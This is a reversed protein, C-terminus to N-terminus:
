FRGYSNLEFTRNEGEERSVDHFITVYHEIWNNAQNGSWVWNVKALEEVFRKTTVTRRGRPDVEIASCFAAEIDHRRPM